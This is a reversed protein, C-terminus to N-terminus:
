VVHATGTADSEVAVPAQARENPAGILIDANPVMLDVHPDISKNVPFKLALYTSLTQPDTMGMRKLLTVIDRGALFVVPHEDERVEQYAQQAIFATTVFVGFQRHKIRSILRSVMRVGAGGGDPDYCKAELAFQLRIPDEDPGM